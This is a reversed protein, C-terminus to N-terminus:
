AQWDRPPEARAPPEDDGAPTAGPKGLIQVTTAQPGDRGMTEEFRVRTGIELREYQDGAVSNRHFYIDRGTSTKLFGYDEDPHLRVVLAWPEATRQKVDHRRRDVLEKLQREAADFANNVVTELSDELDHDGPKKHVVLEHGPPVRLEIKVRWPSGSTTHEHPKGVLVRCSVLDDCMTDLRSVRHRIKEEVRRDPELNRFQLQLPIEM